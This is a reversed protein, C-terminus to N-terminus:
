ALGFQAKNGMDISVQSRHKAYGMAKEEIEELGMQGELWKKLLQAHLAAQATSSGIHPRFGAVADGVLLVKSDMLCMRPAMVDTIIQVFPEMTKVLIESFVKPLISEAHAKQRAWVQPQIKSAPVTFRHKRSENDTMLEAFEPSAADYNCYWVWNLHRQGPQLSGDKGPIM